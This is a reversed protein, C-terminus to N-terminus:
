RRAGSAQLRQERRARRKAVRRHQRQCRNAVVKLQGRVPNERFDPKFPMASQPVPIELVAVAEPTVTEAAVAECFSAKEPVAEPAVAVATMTQPLTAEKPVAESTVVEAAVAEPLVAELTRISGTERGNFCGM